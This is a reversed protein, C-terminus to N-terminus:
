RDLLVQLVQLVQEVVQGQLVQVEQAEPPEQRVQLVPLVKLLLLEPRGKLVLQERIEKIVQPGKLVPLVPQDQVQQVPPARVELLVPLAM